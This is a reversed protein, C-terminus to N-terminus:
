NLSTSLIWPIQPPHNSIVLVKHGKRLVNGRTETAAELVQPRAPNYILYPLLAIKCSSFESFDAAVLLNLM